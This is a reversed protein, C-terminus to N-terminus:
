IIAQNSQRLFFLIGFYKPYQFILSTLEIAFGM